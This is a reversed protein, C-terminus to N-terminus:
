YITGMFRTARVIAAISQRLETKVSAAEGMDDLDPLVDAEPFFVAEFADLFANM